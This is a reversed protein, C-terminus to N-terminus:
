YIGYERLYNFLYIAAAKEYYSVVMKIKKEILHQYEPKLKLLCFEDLLVISFPFPKILKGESLFYIDDIPLNKKDFFKLSIYENCNKPTIDFNLIKHYKSYDYIRAHM